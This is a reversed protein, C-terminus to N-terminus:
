KGTPRYKQMHQRTRLHIGPTFTPVDLTDVESVIWEPESHALSFGAQEIMMALQKPESRHLQSAEHQPTGSKALNDVVFFMGEPKLVRKVEAFIAQPEGFTVGPKPEFWIERPGQIWLVRDITADAASLNTFPADSYHTNPLAAKRLLKRADKGFFGDLLAPQQVTLHGEPEILRLLIDTFWGKGPELELISQGPELGSERLMASARRPGDMTRAQDSRSPARLIAEIDIM